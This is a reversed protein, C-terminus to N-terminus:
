LLSLVKQSANAAYLLTSYGVTEETKDQDPLHRHSEDATPMRDESRNRFLKSLETQRKSSRGHNFPYTTREVRSIKRRAKMNSINETESDERNNSQTLDNKNELASELNIM